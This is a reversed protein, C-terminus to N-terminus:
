IQNRVIESTKVRKEATKVWTNITDLPYAVLESLLAGSASGLGVILNNVLPVHKVTESM